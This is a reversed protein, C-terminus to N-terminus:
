HAGAPLQYTVPWDTFRQDDCDHQEARETLRFAAGTWHWTMMTGCRGHDSDYRISQLLRRDADYTTNPLYIGYVLSTAGGEDPLDLPTGSVEGPAVLYWRSLINVGEVPCLHQWLTFGGPLGYQYLDDADIGSGCWDMMEATIPPLDSVINVAAQDIAVPTAAAAITHALALATLSVLTARLMAHTTRTVM